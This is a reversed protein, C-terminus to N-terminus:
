HSRLCGFEPFASNLSVTQLQDIVSKRDDWIASLSVEETRRVRFTLFDNAQNKFWKYIKNDKLNFAHDIHAKIFFTRIPDFVAVTFTAILAAVAPIVVRPDIHTECDTFAWKPFGSARLRHSM